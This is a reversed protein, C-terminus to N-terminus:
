PNVFWDPLTVQASCRSRGRQRSVYLTKGNQTVNPPLMCDYQERSTTDDTAVDGVYWPLAIKKTGDAARLLTVRQFITCSEETMLSYAALTERKVGEPLTDERQGFLPTSIQGRFTTTTVFNLGGKYTVELKIAGGEYSLKGKMEYFANQSPYHEATYPNGYPDAGHTSHGEFSGTAITGKGILDTSTVQSQTPRVSIADGRKEVVFVAPNNVCAGNVLPSKSPVHYTGDPLAALGSPASAPPPQRNLEDASSTDESTGSSCAVLTAALTVLLALTPRM